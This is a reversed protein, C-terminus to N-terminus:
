RYEPRIEYGIDELLALDLRTPYVRTRASLTNDMLVRQDDFVVHSGLHGDPELPVDAGFLERARPGTFVSGDSSRLSAYADSTMVGLAHGLEHLATSLFDTRDNPVDDFTDPTPDLFFDKDCAFTIASTWPEFDPGALRQGLERRFPEGHISTLRAATRTRATERTAALEDTCGVFVLLDDIPVDLELELTPETLQEVSKVALPTGAPIAPFDDRLRAGWEAAALELLLRREADFYGRTDFRYDFQIAFAHEGRPAAADVTAVGEGAGSREGCAVLVLAVSAGLRQNM